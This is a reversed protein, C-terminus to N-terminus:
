FQWDLKLKKASLDFQAYNPGNATGSCRSGGNCSATAKVKFNLTLEANTGDVKIRPNKFPDPGIRRWKITSTKVKNGAENLAFPCNAPKTSKKKLCDNFNKKTLDLVAKRGEATISTKLKYTSVITEPSNVTVTSSKGFGVYKMGTSFVYSGPLAYVEESTIRKGNIVVPVGDDSFYSLDMEAAIDNVKWLDGTKEVRYSGSVTKGGLKYTAPVKYAYEDTVAPV